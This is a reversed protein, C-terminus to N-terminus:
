TAPDYSLGMIDEFYDVPWFNLTTTTPGCSAIGSWPDDFVIGPATRSQAVGSKVTTDISPTNAAHSM